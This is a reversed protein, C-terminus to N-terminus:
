ISSREYLDNLRFRDLGSINETEMRRQDNNNEERQQRSYRDYNGSVDRKLEENKREKM